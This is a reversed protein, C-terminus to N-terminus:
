GEVCGLGGIDVIDEMIGVCTEEGRILSYFGLKGKLGWGVGYVTVVISFFFVNLFYFVM